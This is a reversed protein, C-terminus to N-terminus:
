HNSQNTRGDYEAGKWKEALEEGIEKLIDLHELFREWTCFKKMYTEGFIFAIDSKWKSYFPILKKIEELNM